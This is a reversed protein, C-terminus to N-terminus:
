QSSTGARNSNSVPHRPSRRPGSLVVTPTASSQATADDNALLPPVQHGANEDAAKQLVKTRAAIGTSVPPKKAKRAAQQAMRQAEAESRQGDAYAM